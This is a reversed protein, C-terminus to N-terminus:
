FLKAQPLGLLTQTRVVQEDLLEQAADFTEGKVIPSGTDKYEKVFKYELPAWAMEMEKLMKEFGNVFQHGDFIIEQKKM